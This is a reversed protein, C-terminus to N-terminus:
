WGDPVNVSSSGSSSSHASGKSTSQSTSQSSTQASSGESVMASQGNLQATVTTSWTSLCNAQPKWNWEYFGSGNATFTGQLASSTDPKNGCFSVQITLHAGPSTYVCAHAQSGNMHFGDQAKPGSCALTLVLSGAQGSATSSSASASSGASSPVTIGGSTHTPTTHPLVPPSTRDTTTARTSNSSAQSSTVQNSSQGTSANSCAALLFLLGLCVLILRRHM